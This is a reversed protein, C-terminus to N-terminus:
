GARFTIVRGLGNTCRYFTAVELAVRTVKYAFGLSHWREHLRAGRVVRRATSCSVGTARIDRLVFDAIGKFTV